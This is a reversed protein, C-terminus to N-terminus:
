GAAVKWYQLAVRGLLTAVVARLLATTDTFAQAAPTPRSLLGCLVELQLRGQVQLEEILADGHCQEDPSCHCILM